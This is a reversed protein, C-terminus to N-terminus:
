WQMESVPCCLKKHQKWHKKQCKRSCFYALRCHECKKFLTDSEPLKCKQCCVSNCVKNKMRLIEPELKLFTGQKEAQKLANEIEEFKPMEKLRRSTHSRKM